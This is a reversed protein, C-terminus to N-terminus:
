AVRTFTISRKAPNAETLKVRLEDGPQVGKADVRAVIPLDSLQIRAGRDDTDTVVAAFTEGVRGNLVAAEALDIVARDINHGLSEAKEMPEPLRDFAEVVVEPISQGSGLALAAQVVYRDALRRLPATAHAYTAAMAAHWPPNPSSGPQQHLPQYAARGGARRIALVMAAHRPDAPRLGREFAALDVNKPWDIGFARATYRLRRIAREDPGDMTRFLGAGAALMAEAIALNTALSMAANREESELNARLTLEYGGDARASVEQEVPEIRTAGRQDSAANIRRSLEVFEAPVEADTVTEYALKARSRIVAREAGDLRSVGAQDVLVHFVVAPRPGDPLLSAAGESLVPPYLGARGDPLYQTMGRKWAEVDLPDGDNVFWAVDAIAYHLLIDSGRSELFFAQDLDTSTAPDLTVFAWDTRDAHEDPSRKAAQEAAAVVEAPFGDPVQFQSRIEALGAALVGTTDVLSRM